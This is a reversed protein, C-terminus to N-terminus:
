DTVPPRGRDSSRPMNVLAGRVTLTASAKVELSGTAEISITGAKISLQGKAEITMTSCTEGKTM